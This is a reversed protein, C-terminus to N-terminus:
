LFNTNILSYKYKEINQKKFVCNPSGDLFSVNKASMGILGKAGGGRISKPCIFLFTLKKEENIFTYTKTAASLGRYRGIFM